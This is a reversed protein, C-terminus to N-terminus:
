VTAVQAAKTETSLHFLAEGLTFVCPHIEAMHIEVHELWDARRRRRCHASITETFPSSCNLLIYHTIEISDPQSMVHDLRSTQSAWSPLM